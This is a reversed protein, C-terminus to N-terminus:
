KPAAGGFIVQANFAARLEALVGRMAKSDLLARPRM